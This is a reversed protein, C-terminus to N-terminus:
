VRSIYKHERTDVVISDGTKIFLPVKLSIGSELKAPKLASGTTDGKVAPDTHTVKLKLKNPLEIDLVRGEFVLTVLEQGEVLYGQKDGITKASLSLQEYSQTNMLHLQDGEAYLYQMNTQNVQAPTIRDNGKFSKSLLNGSILNKLQTKVVAGSRAQKSHQSDVVRYPVGDIQILADKKLDTLGYM